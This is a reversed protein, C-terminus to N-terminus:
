ACVRSDTPNLGYVGSRSMKPTMAYSELLRVALTSSGFAAFLGRQGPLPWSGLGPALRRTVAHGLSQARERLWAAFGKTASEIGMWGATELFLAEALDGRLRLRQIEEDIRGGLTLLLFVLAASRSLVSEAEPGACLPSGDIMLTRDDLRSPYVLQYQVVPVSLVQARAAMRVAIRAVASPAKEPEGYGQVRLMAASRM